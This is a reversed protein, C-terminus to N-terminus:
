LFSDRFEQARKTRYQTYLSSLEESETKAEPGTQAEAQPKKKSYHFVGRIGTERNDRGEIQFPPVKQARTTAHFPLCPTQPKALRLAGRGGGAGDVGGEGNKMSELPEPENGVIQHKALEADVDLLVSHIERELWTTETKEDTKLSQGDLAEEVLELAAEGALDSRTLTAERREVVQLVAREFAEPSLPCAKEEVPAFANRGLKMTGTLLEDFVSPAKSHDSKSPHEM